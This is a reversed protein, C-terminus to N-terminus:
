LRGETTGAPAMLDPPADTPRARTRRDRLENLCYNTAVRYIWFLGEQASPVRDLHRHVRLFTEQTADEAESDDALLVRCRAYITPGYTRYLATLRDPHM